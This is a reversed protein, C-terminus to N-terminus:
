RGSLFERVDDLGGDASLFSLALVSPGAPRLETVLRVVAPQGVIGVCKSVVHRRSALIAAAHNRAVIRALQDAFVVLDLYRRYLGKNHAMTAVRASERVAAQLGFSWRRRDRRSRGRLKDFPPGRM